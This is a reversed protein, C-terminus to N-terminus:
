VDLPCHKSGLPSLSDLSKMEVMKSGFEEILQIDDEIILIDSSVEIPHQIKNAIKQKYDEYFSYLYSGAQKGGYILVSTTFAAGAGAIVSLGLAGLRSTNSITPRAVASYTRSLTKVTNAALSGVTLETGYALVNGTLEIGTGTVAAAIEGTTTLTTFVIASVTAGVITGSASITFFSNDTQNPVLTQIEM